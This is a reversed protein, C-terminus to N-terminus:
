RMRRRYMCIYNERFRQVVASPLHEASHWPYYRVKPLLLLLLLPIGVKSTGVTTKSPLFVKFLKLTRVLHRAQM